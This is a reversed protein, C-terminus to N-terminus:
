YRPCVKLREQVGHHRAAAELRQEEAGARPGHPDEGAPKYRETDVSNNYGSRQKRADSYLKPQRSVPRPIKLDEIDYTYQLLEFSRNHSM